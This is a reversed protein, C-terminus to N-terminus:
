VLVPLVYREKREWGAYGIMNMWFIYIFTILQSESQSLMQRRWIQVNLFTVDITAETPGYLNILRTQSVPFIIEQFMAVQYGHLVEGSCFIYKLSSIDELTHNRNEKIYELFVNFMSPVFHIVSIRNKAIQEIISLVNKHGGPEMVLVSCGVMAWLFIEWVSVDFTYPTKQLVRDFPTLPYKQMMWRLRNYLAQHEIMVGKPEGTTGSTYIIYALDNQDQIVPLNDTKENEWEMEDIYLIKGKFSFANRFKKSTILLQVGSDQLIFQIRKPPDETSLPLYAHGSKLIGYIAIMMEASRELLVAVVNKEKDEKLIYHAFQNSLNNFEKYTFSRNGCIIATGEPNEMVNEYFMNLVSNNKNEAM